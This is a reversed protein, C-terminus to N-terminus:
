QATYGGDIVLTSGTMYRADDSLLYTILGTVAEPEPIELLTSAAIHTWLAAGAQAAMPTQLLGPCIANVRVGRAASTVALSRTLALVGGKAASYAELGPEAVLAATSAVNVISASASQELLRMAKRTCLFSGTLNVAISRAWAENSVDEIRGSANPAAMGANNVLGDLRGFEREIQDFATAVSDSDAVDCRITLVQPSDLLLRQAQDLAEANRDVMVVTAGEAVCATTTALGVGSAAGTVAVVRQDLKGATM